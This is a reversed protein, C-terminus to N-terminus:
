SYYSLALLGLFFCQMYTQIYGPIFVAEMVGHSGATASIVVVSMIWHVILGGQPSKYLFTDEAAGPHNRQIIDDKKLYRSWPLIEAQGIAQKVPLWTLTISSSWHQSRSNGRSFTYIIANLSGFSSIAAIIAWTRRAGVNDGTLQLHM